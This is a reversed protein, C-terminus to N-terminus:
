ADDGGSAVRARRLDALDQGLVWDVGIRVLREVLGELMHGVPTYPSQRDDIRVPQDPHEGLGVDDVLHLVLLCTPQHLFDRLGGSNLVSGSRGGATRPSRARCGFARALGNTRGRWASGNWNDCNLRFPVVISRERWHGWASGVSVDREPSTLGRQNRCRRPHM